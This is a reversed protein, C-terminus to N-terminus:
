SVNEDAPAPASELNNRRSVDNASFNSQTREAEICNNDLQHLRNQEITITNLLFKLFNPAPTICNTVVTHKRRNDVGGGGGGIEGFTDYDDENNLAAVDYDTDGRTLLLFSPRRRLCL